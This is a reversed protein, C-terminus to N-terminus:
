YDRSLSLWSRDYFLNTLRVYDLESNIKDAEQEILAISDHLMESDYPLSSTKDDWGEPLCVM